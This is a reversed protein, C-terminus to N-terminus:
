AQLGTWDLTFHLGIRFALARSPALFLDAGGTEGTEIWLAVEEADGIVLYMGEHTVAFAADLSVDLVKAALPASSSSNYELTLVPTWHSQNAMSGTVLIM